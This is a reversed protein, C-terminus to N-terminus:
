SPNTLQPIPELLPHDVLVLHTVDDTERVEEVIGQRMTRHASRDPAPNEKRM